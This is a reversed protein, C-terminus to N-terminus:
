SKFGLMDMVTIGLSYVDSKFPDYKSIQIKQYFIKSLEPSM